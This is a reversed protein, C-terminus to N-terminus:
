GDRDVRDEIKMIVLIQDSLNPPLSVSVIAVASAGLGDQEGELLPQTDPVSLGEPRGGDEEPAYRPPPLGASCQKAGEHGQAEHRAPLLHLM